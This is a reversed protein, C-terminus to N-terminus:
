NPCLCYSGINRQQSCFRFRHEGRVCLRRHLVKSEPSRLLLVSIASWLRPDGEPTVSGGGSDFDWNQIRFPPAHVLPDFFGFNEFNRFNTLCAIRVENHSTIYTDCTDPAWVRNTWLELVAAHIETFIAGFRLERRTRDLSAFKRALPSGQNKSKKFISHAYELM